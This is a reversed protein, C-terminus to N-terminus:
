DVQFLLFQTKRGLLFDNDSVFIMSRKGNSLRPGFAAGEVNDIYMNLSDMNLLLQKKVLVKPRNVKLSQISSVDQATKFNCKFVKITCNKVGTSFSRETILFEDAGIPLIDVIGNVKFGDAPAPAHAIPGLKYAYQALLKKKEVDYKLIRVYATTDKLGAAPGDQYLPAETTVYMTKDNDTFCVGEFVGNQRPGKEDKTMLFQAPLPFHGIDKGNNDMIIIAPDQLIANGDKIIRDGESTWVFYKKTGNFRIAEPDPAHAPDTSLSPYLAGNSQRLATQAIFFATDIKDAKLNIKATYFRIPNIVARDDCILYYENLKPNYDIGSLGGVTTNQFQFNYPIDFENLFTLKNITQGNATLAILFILATLISKM